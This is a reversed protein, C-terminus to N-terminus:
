GRRQRIALDRSKIVIHRVLGPEKGRVLGKQGCKSIATEATSHAAGVVWVLLKKAEKVLDDARHVEIGVIVIEHSWREELVLRVSAAESGAARKLQGAAMAKRTRESTANEAFFGRVTEAIMAQEETFVFHM